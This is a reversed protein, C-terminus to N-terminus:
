PKKRTDVAKPSGPIPPFTVTKKEHEILPKLYLAPGDGNEAPFARLRDLPPQAMISLRQLDAKQADTFRSGYQDL